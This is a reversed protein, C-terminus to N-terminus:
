LNLDNILEEHTYNTIFWKVEKWFELETNFIVSELIEKCIYLCIDKATLVNKDHSIEYCWRMYADKYLEKAKLKSEFSM